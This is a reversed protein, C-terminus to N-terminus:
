CFGGVHFTEFYASVAAHLKGLCVTGVHIRAGGVMLECLPNVTIGVKAFAERRNAGAGLRACVGGCLDFHYDFRQSFRSDFRQSFRSNLSFIFTFLSCDLHVNLHLVDQSLM